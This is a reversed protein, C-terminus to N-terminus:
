RPHVREWATGTFEWTIAVNGKHMAGDLILLGNPGPSLPQSPRLAPEGFAASVRTWKTGGWAWMASPREGDPPTTANRRRREQELDRWGVGLDTKDVPKLGGYLVLRERRADFAAFHHLRIGPGSTDRAHTPDGSCWLLPACAGLAPFTVSPASPTASPQDLAYNCCDEARLMPTLMVNRYAITVSQRLQPM